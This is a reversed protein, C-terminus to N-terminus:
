RGTKSFTVVNNAVRSIREENEIRIKLLLFLKQLGLIPWGLVFNNISFQRWKNNSYKFWFGEGFVVWSSISTIDLSIENVGPKSLKWRKVPIFM